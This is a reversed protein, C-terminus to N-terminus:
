VESESASLTNQWYEIEKEVKDLTTDPEVISWGLRLQEVKAKIDPAWDKDIQELKELTAIADIIKDQKELAMKLADQLEDPRQEIHEKMFDQMQLKADLSSEQVEYREEPTLKEEFLKSRVIEHISADEGGIEALKKRTTPSLAELLMKHQTLPCCLQVLSKYAQRYPWELLGIKVMADKVSANDIDPTSKLEKFITDIQDKIERPLNPPLHNIGFELEKLIASQKQEMPKRHNNHTSYILFATNQKKYTFASRSDPRSTTPKQTTSVEEYHMAVAVDKHHRERITKAAEKLKSLIEPIQEISVEDQSIFTHARWISVDCYPCYDSDTFTAIESFANKLEEESLYDVGEESDNVVLELAIFQTM